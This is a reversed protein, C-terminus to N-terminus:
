RDGLIAALEDDMIEALGRTPVWGTVRRFDSSDLASSLGNPAAMERRIVLERGRKALEAKLAQAIDVITWVGDPGINYARNWDTEQEIAAAAVIARTMDRVHLYGFAQGNLRLTIAGEEVAQAALRATIRQTLGPGVLSAIRLNLYPLDHRRGFDAIWNELYYKGMDYLANLHVSDTERAPQDRRADYVSQSSIHIVRDVGCAHCLPLLTFTWECSAKVVDFDSSRAYALHLLVYGDLAPPDAVFADNTMVRLRKRPEDIREFDMRLAIVEHRPDSLIEDILHRGLFGGAGSILFKM